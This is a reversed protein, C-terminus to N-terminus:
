EGRDRRRKQEEWAERMRAEDRLPPVEVVLLPGWYPDEQSCAGWVWRGGVLSELPVEPNPLEWERVPDRFTVVTEDVVTHSGSNGCDLVLEEGNRVLQGFCYQLVESM